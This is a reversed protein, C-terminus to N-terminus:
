NALFKIYINRIMAVNKRKGAIGMRCSKEQKLPNTGIHRRVNVNEAANEARMRSRDELFRIDLVWHLSDEIGWHAKARGM